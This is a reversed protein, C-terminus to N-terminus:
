WGMHKSAAVWAKNNEARRKDLIDLHYAGREGSFYGSELPEFRNKYLLDYVSANDIWQKETESMNGTTTKNM